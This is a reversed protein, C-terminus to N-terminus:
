ANKGLRQETVDVTGETALATRDVHFIDILRYPFTSNIGINAAQKNFDSMGATHM